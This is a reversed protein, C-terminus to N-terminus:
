SQQVDRKWLDFLFRGQDIKGRSRHDTVRPLIRPRSKIEPQTNGVLSSDAFLCERDLFCELWQWWVERVVEGGKSSVEMLTKKVQNFSQKWIKAKRRFWTKRGWQQSNESGRHHCEWSGKVQLPPQLLGWRQKGAKEKSSSSSYVLVVVVVVVM